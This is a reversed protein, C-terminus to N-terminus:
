KVRIFVPVFGYRVCYLRLDPVERWQIVHLRGNPAGVALRMHTSTDQTCMSGSM